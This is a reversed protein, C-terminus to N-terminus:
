FVYFQPMEKGAHLANKRCGRCLRIIAIEGKGDTLQLLKRKFKSFTHREMEVAFVSKQLRIGSTLLYRALRNRTQNDVIDYAVICTM